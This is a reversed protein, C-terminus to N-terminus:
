RPSRKEACSCTRHHPPADPSFARARMALTPGVLAFTVIASAVLIKMIHDKESQALLWRVADKAKASSGYDGAMIVIPESIV